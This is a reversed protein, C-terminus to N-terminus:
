ETVEWTGVKNGNIDRIDKVCGEFRYEDLVKDAVICLLRYLEVEPGDPNFAANDMNIELTFKM